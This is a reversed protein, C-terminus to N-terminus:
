EAAAIMASYIKWVQMVTIGGARAGAALMATTPKVPLAVMGAGAMAGVMDLAIGLANSSQLIADNKYPAPPKM